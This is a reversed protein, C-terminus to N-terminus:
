DEQQGKQAGKNRKKVIRGLHDSSIFLYDMGQQSLTYELSNPSPPGLTVTGTSGARAEDKLVTQALCVYDDGYKEKMYWGFPKHYPINSSLFEAHGLHCSVVVNQDHPCFSDILFSSYEFMKRDRLLFDYGLHFSDPQNDDNRLNDLYFRIIPFDDGFIARLEAENRNMIPIIKSAETKM